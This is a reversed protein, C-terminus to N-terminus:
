DVLSEAEDELEFPTIWVLVGLVPSDFYEMRQSKVQRNQKIQHILFSSPLPPEPEGAESEDGLVPAATLAQEDFVAQRLEIDIDLHLFRSRRLMVTGDLRYFLTPDPLEPEEALERLADEITVENANGPLLSGQDTFVVPRDEIEQIEDEQDEGTEDGAEVADPERLEAYPDDILVVEQDHIRLSPFPEDASQEWALFQEPRFPASLRLRRWAERMVDSMDQVVVVDAWPDEPEIANLLSEGSIEQGPPAETMGLDTAPPQGVGPEDAGPDEVVLLEAGSDEDSTAEDDEANLFDLATSFDRISATESPIAEHHLHSLILIEVRYRKEGAMCPVAILILITILFIRYLM